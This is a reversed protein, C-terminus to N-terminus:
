QSVLRSTLSITSTASTTTRHRVMYVTSRGLLLACLTAVARLTRRGRQLGAVYVEWGSLENQYGQGRVTDTNQDWQGTAAFLRTVTKILCRGTAEMRKKDSQPVNKEFEEKISWIQHLPGDFVLDESVDTGVVPQPEPLCGGGLGLYVAAPYTRVLDVDPWLERRAMIQQTM